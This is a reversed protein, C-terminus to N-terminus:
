TEGSGAGTGGLGGSGMVTADSGSVVGSGVRGFSATGDGVVAGVGTGAVWSPVGPFGPSGPRGPEGPHLDPETGARVEFVMRVAREKSEPPVQAAVPAARDNIGHEM